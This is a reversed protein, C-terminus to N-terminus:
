REDVKLSKSKEREEKWKKFEEQGERSKYYELISPLITRVITDIVHQPIESNNIVKKKKEMRKKTYCKKM